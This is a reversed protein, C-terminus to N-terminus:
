GTIALVQGQLGDQRISDSSDPLCKLRINLTIAASLAFLRRLSTSVGTATSFSSGHFSIWFVKRESARCVVKETRTSM